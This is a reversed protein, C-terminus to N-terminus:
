FNLSVSASITIPTDNYRDGLGFSLNIDAALMENIEFSAGVFPEIGLDEADDGIGILVDAGVWPTISGLSYDFEVGIKLDMSGDSLLDGIGVESGLSLENTLNMFYQAGVTLGLDDDDFNDGSFPLDLDAFFGLNMPLWYRVGLIPQAMGTPRELDIGNIEASHSLVFPFTVAAELGQIIGYRASAKLGLKSWDGDMGYSTGVKVEGKGADKVPFYNWTAFSSVACLLAIALVKKM